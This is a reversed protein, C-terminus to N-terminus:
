MVRMLRVVTEGAARLNARARDPALAESMSQPGTEIPLVADIGLAYVPDLDDARSGCVAIVPADVGLSRARRAIGAPAKGEATQGDVAGEGTVILDATGVIRDFDTMELVADIGPVLEAGLALLAAGLGGASGSGPVGALSRPRAGVAAVQLPTGDLADRAATLRAGCAAMWRDCAALMEDRCSPDLGAGLGKQGGFVRVAGRPGVLPNCVDSLAVLRAGELATRAPALDVSVVDRLGILGSAVPAGAADVVHAGLEQLLGVGCDTAASGGLGIYVTKAGAAVADAIMSGVGRTSATLAADHTRPSLGIGAAQATEVVAWPNEADGALLYTAERSAGFPGPVRVTRLEGGMAAHLAEVTGEGGDAIPIETIRAAPDARRVGEAFWKEAQASTASGKFSDMALVVHRAASCSWGRAGGPERVPPVEGAEVAGDDESGRLARFFARLVEACEEELVGRCVPFAHNLRSDASVDYLTGLAGGKPDAAGYVCRSVRANVILGACMVCPELTVYVTCGTLRWRGLSRAAEMMALFEAHASPDEDLERRNHARAIVEGEYVVVAGIPVEGLEAAARAEALAERMFREDDERSTACEFTEGAPKMFAM